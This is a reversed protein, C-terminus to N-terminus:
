IYFAYDIVEYPSLKRAEKLYQYCELKEINPIKLIEKLDYKSLSGINVNNKILFHILKNYEDINTNKYKPYHELALSLSSKGRFKLNINAGNKVLFEAVSFHKFYCAYHLPTFGFYYKSDLDIKSAILKILTIDGQSAAVHLLTNGIKDIHHTNSGHSILTQYIDLRDRKNNIFIAMELPSYGKNEVAEINAGCNILHNTIEKYGNKVAILLPTYGNKEHSEINAGCQILYKVAEFNGKRAAIYLPSFGATNQSEIDAGNDILFKIIEIDNNLSAIHLPTMSKNTKSKINAGCDFLYKVVELNNLTTAIHLPSFGDKTKAEYNAGHMIFLKVLDFNGTFSAFHLASWKELSKLDIIQDLNCLINEMEKLDKQDWICFKFVNTDGDISYNIDAEIKILLKM